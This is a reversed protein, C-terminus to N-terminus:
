PSLLPVGWGGQGRELLTYFNSGPMGVNLRYRQEALDLEAQAAWCCRDLTFALVPRFDAPEQLQGDVWTFVQNLRGTLYLTTGAAPQLKVGATLPSFSLRDTAIDDPYTGRRTRTYAAEGAVSFFANPQWSRSFALAALESRPQDLGPMNYTGSLRLRDGPETSVYSARLTPRTWDGRRLDFPGGYAVEWNQARGSGQTGVSFNVQGTDPATPLPAMNLSHSAEFAYEGRWLVKANGAWTNSIFNLRQAASFTVPNLVTDRSRTMNATVGVEHLQPTVINHSAYVTINDSRYPGALNAQVTLPQWGGRESFGWNTTLSLKELWPFAQQTQLRQQEEPTLPFQPTPTRVPVFSSGLTSSLTWRELTGTYFNQNLTSSLQLPWRNVRVGFATASQNEPSLIFDHTHSLSVTAGAVPVWTLAATLPANLRRGSLRDFAFPSTGEYRSYGSSLSAAHQGKDGFRQTLLAEINLDVTRAGTGYYRGTFRNKVSFEAGQWLPRSYSLDHQEELRAATVNAGLRMASPSDPNPAATYRGATLRVDASFDGSRYPRPDIVVEPWKLPTYQSRNEDRDLLQYLNLQATFAPYDASVQGRLTTVGRLPDATSRGIDRRNLSLEYTLPARALEPDAHGRVSFDLDVDRGDGASGLAKALAAPKPDALLYLDARDIYPLPAYSHLDAGGGFAQPRNQYFRLLTTGLTHDAVSFPLDALLTLGDRDDQSLELRPQRAPDGLLIVLAPLYLVPYGALLLQVRYAVLRDGPYLLLTEAQFAYDDPTQGCSGCPTFYSGQAHLQGPVRQLEQGRILLRGQGVLVDEGSLASTNLNIVLNDGSLTQGEATSYQARGVLTLTRATRNFEIRQAQLPEGDLLLQVLGDQEPESQELGIHEPEDGVAGAKGPAQQGQSEPAANDAAIVVIEQGDIRRLELSGADVIKVTAAEAAPSLAATLLALQLGAWLRRCLPLHRNVRTM